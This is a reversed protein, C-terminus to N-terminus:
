PRRISAGSIARQRRAIRSTASDFVLTSPLRLGTASNLRNRLDKTILEKVYKSM